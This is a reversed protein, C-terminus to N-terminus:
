FVFRGDPRRVLFVVRRDPPSLLCRVISRLDGADVQPLVPALRACAARVERAFLEVRRPRGGRAGNARAAAGKAPSTSRGGKRGMERSHM